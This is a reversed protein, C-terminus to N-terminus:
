REECQDKNGGEIKHNLFPAGLPSPQLRGANLHDFLGITHHIRFASHPTRLASHNVIFLSRHVIFLFNAIWLKDKM